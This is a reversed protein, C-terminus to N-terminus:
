LLQPQLMQFCVLSVRRQLRGLGEVEILDQHLDLTATVCAILRLSVTFSASAKPAGRQGGHCDAFGADAGACDSTQQGFLFIKTSFGSLLNSAVDAKVAIMDAGNALAYHVISAV